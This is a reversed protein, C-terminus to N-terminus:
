RTSRPGLQIKVDALSNLLAQQDTNCAIFEVGKMGFDIMRNVANCGGGGLGVVKIVPLNANIPTRKIPESNQLYDMIVEIRKKM